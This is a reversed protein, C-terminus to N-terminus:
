EIEYDLIKVNQYSNIAFQNFYATLEQREETHAWLDFDKKDHEHILYWHCSDDQALIKKDMLERHIRNLEYDQFTSDDM